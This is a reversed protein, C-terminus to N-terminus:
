SKGAAHGDRVRLRQHGIEIHHVGRGLFILCRENTKREPADAIRREDCRVRGVPNENIDSPGRMQELALCRKQLVKALPQCRLTHGGSGRNGICRTAGPGHRAKASTVDDRGAAGRFGDGIQGYRDDEL